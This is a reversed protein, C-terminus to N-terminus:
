KSTPPLRCRPRTKKTNMGIWSGAAWRAHMRWGETDILPCSTESGGDLDALVGKALECCRTLRAALPLAGHLGQMAIGAREKKEKRTALTGGKDGCRNVLRGEMAWFPLTRLAASFGFFFFSGLLLNSSTCADAPWHRFAPWDFPNAALRSEWNDTGHSWCHYFFSPLPQPRSACRVPV